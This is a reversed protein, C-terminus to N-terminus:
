PAADRQLRLFRGGRVAAAVHDMGPVNATQRRLNQIWHPARVSAM